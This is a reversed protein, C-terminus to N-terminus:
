RKRHYILWDISFLIMLFATSLSIIAGLYVEKPKYEFVIEHEGPEIQVARFLYDAQYIKLEQESSSQHGFVSLLNQLGFVSTQNEKIQKGNETTEQGDETRQRGDE